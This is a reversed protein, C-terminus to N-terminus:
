ITAPADTSRATSPAPTASTAPSAPADTSPAATDAPDPTILTYAIAALVGALLEAALYV